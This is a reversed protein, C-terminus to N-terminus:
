RRENPGAGSRGKLVEPLIAKRAHRAPKCRTKAAPLCDTSWKHSDSKEHSSRTSSCYLRWYWRTTCSAIKLITDRMTLINRFGDQSFHFIKEYLSYEVKNVMYICFCYLVQQLYKKWSVTWGFLKTMGSNFRLMDWNTECSLMKLYIPFVVLINLNIKQVQYAKIVLFCHFLRYNAATPSPLRRGRHRWRAFQLFCLHRKQNHGM